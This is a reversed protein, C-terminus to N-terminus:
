ECSVHQIFQAKLKEARGEKLNPALIIMLKEKLSSDLSLEKLYNFGLAQCIRRAQEITKPGGNDPALVEPMLILQDKGDKGDARGTVVVYSCVFNGEDIGKHWCDVELNRLLLQTASLEIPGPTLEIKKQSNEDIMTKTSGEFLEIAESRSITNTTALFAIALLAKHLFVTAMKSETIKKPM